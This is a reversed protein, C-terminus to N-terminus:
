RKTACISFNMPIYKVDGNEEFCVFNESETCMRVDICGMESLTIIDWNPRREKSLPLKKAIDLMINTDIDGIYRHETKKIDKISEAYEEDFIHLYHNGDFVLINGGKDLVRLWERYAKKPNELNWVLNRCIVLDFSNDPFELKQADMHILKAKVEHNICNCKAMELMADTCDIATIDHGMRGLIVPFFGPGTGIDLVRLKKSAINVNKSIKNIWLTTNEEDLSENVSQSYSKSRLTWYEKIASLQENSPTESVVPNSDCTM